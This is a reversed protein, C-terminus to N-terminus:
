SPLAALVTLNPFPKVAVCFLAVIVTATSSVFYGDFVVTADSMADAFISIFFAM